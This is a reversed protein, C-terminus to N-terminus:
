GNKGSDWWKLWLEANAQESKYDGNAIDVKTILALPVNFWFDGKRLERILHPIIAPGLAIIAQGHPGKWSDYTSSSQRFQKREEQWLPLLRRYEDDVTRLKESLRRTGGSTQARATAVMTAMGGLAALVARRAIDPMLNRVM